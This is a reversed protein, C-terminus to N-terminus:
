INIKILKNNYCNKNNYSMKHIKIISIYKLSLKYNKIKSIYKLCM